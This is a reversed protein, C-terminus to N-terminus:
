LKRPLIPFQIERSCSIMYYFGLSELHNWSSELIINEGEINVASTHHKFQGSIYSLLVSALSAVLLLSFPFVSRPPCVQTVGARRLTRHDCRFRNGLVGSLCRSQEMHNKLPGPNRGLREGHVPNLRSAPNWGHGGFLFTHTVREERTLGDIEFPIMLSLGLSPPGPQLALMLVPHCAKRFLPSKQFVM